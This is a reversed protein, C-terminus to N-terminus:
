FSLPSSKNYCQYGINLIFSHVVKQCELFNDFVRLSTHFESFLILLKHKGTIAPFPIGSNMIQIPQLYKREFYRSKPFVIREPSQNQVELCKSLLSDSDRYLNIM